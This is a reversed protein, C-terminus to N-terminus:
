PTVSLPLDDPSIDKVSLDAYVARYKGTAKLKYWCIIAEADGIPVKSGIYQFSGKVTKDDIFHQAPMMNLGAMIYKSQLDIMKQEAESRDKKDKSYVLNLADSHGSMGRPTDPFIEGNFRALAGFYEIMEEETVTPREKREVTYGKPPTLSFLSRDLKANFVIDYQEHAVAEHFWADGPKNQDGMEKEPDFIDAGPVRVRVLQKTKADLWFDYSWPKKNHKVSHVRFINVDGNETKRRGIFELSSKNDVQGVWEFPGKSNFQGFAHTKIIAHKKKPDLTLQKRNVADDIRVWTLNGAKDYSCDRYYGPELYANEKTEAKMWSQKEDKTTARLYYTVKWTISKANKVQTILDAMVVNTSNDFTDKWAVVGVVVLLCLVAVSIRVISKMTFMRSTSNQTNPQNAANELATIVEDYNEGSPVAPVPTERLASIARELQDDSELSFDNKM